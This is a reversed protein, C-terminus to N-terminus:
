MSMKHREERGTKGRELREYGSYEESRRMGMMMKNSEEERETEQQRGARGRGDEGIRVERKIM